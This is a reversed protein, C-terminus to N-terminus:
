DTNPALAPDGQQHRPAADNANVPAALKQFEAELCM